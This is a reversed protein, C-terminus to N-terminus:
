TCWLFHLHIKGPDQDFRRNIDVIMSDIAHVEQTRGIEGLLGKELELRYNLEALLDDEEENNGLLQEGGILDYEVSRYDHVKPLGRLTALFMPTNEFEQEM